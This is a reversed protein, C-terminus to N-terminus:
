AAAIRAQQRRALEVADSLELGEEFGQVLLSATVNRARWVVTYFRVAFEGEGQQRTLALTEEGIEPAEVLEAGEAEEVLSEFEDRYAALDSEAGEGSEFVDVRSEVVAPGGSSGPEPRRFRSKWGGERGFRQPDERPGPVFDAAVLPGDAFQLFDDPLDEQQLVLAGAQSADIGEPEDEGGVSCAALLLGAALV